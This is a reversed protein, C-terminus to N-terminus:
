RQRNNEAEAVTIKLSLELKDNVRLLGGLVSFPKIGFDSQQLTFNGKLVMAGEQQKVDIALMLNQSVGHLHIVVETKNGLLAPLCNHSRLQVLPFNHADISKLMNRTTDAIDEPSPTTKFGAKARQQPNDVVLSTLPIRFQAQCHSYQPGNPNDNRKLLISGQLQHSAVIHNHGLRAMLGDRRVTILVESLGSDVHYLIQNEAEDSAYGLQSPLTSLSAAFLISLFKKM